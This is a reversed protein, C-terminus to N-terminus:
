RVGGGVSMSSPEVAFAVNRPRVVRVVVVIAVGVVVIHGRGGRAACREHRLGVVSCDRKIQSIDFIRCMYYIYYTRAASRPMTVGTAYISCIYAPMFMVIILTCVSVPTGSHRRASRAHPHFHFDM